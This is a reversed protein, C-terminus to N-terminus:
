AYIVQVIDPTPDLLKCSLLFELEVPKVKCCKPQDLTTLNYSDSFFHNESSDISIAFSFNTIELKHGEEFLDHTCKEEFLNPNRTQLDV